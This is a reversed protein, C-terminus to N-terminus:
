AAKEELTHRARSIKVMRRRAQGMKRLGGQHFDFWLAVPILTMCADCFPQDKGKRDGCDCYASWVFKQESRARLRESKRELIKAAQVLPREESGSARIFDVAMVLAERYTMIRPPTVARDPM